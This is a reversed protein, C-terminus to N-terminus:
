IPWICENSFPNSFLVIQSPALRQELRQECLLFVPFHFLLTSIVIPMSNSIRICVIPYCSLSYRCGSVVIAVVFVPLVAAVAVTYLPVATAVFVNVIVVVIVAIVIVIIIVVVIIILTIPAVAVAAVAPLPLGM